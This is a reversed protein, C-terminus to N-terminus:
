TMRYWGGRKQKMFERITGDHVAETLSKSM